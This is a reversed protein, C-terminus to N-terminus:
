KLASVLIIVSVHSIARGVVFKVFVYGIARFDNLKVACQVYTHWDSKITTHQLGAPVDTDVIDIHISFCDRKYSLIITNYICIYRHIYM